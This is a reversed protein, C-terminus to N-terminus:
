IEKIEAECRPNNKDVGGWRYTVKPVNGSNDDPLIGLEVLADCTFKDIISLPNSIDVCRATPQYITYVLEAKAVRCGIFPFENAAHIAARVEGVYMKKAKNLVQFHANRYNNLNLIFSKKKSVPVSLPLNLRM